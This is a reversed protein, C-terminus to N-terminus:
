CDFPGSWESADLIGGLLENLWSDCPESLSFDNGLMHVVPSSAPHWWWRNRLIPLM